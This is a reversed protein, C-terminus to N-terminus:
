LISPHQLHSQLMSLADAQVIRTYTMSTVQEAESHDMFNSLLYVRPSHSLTEVVVHKGEGNSIHDLEVQDCLLMCQLVAIAYTSLITLLLMVEHM